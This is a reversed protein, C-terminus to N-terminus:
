NDPDEMVKEVVSKPPNYRNFHDFIDLVQNIVPTNKLGYYGFPTKDRPDREGKVVYSTEIIGNAIMKKVETAQGWLAIPSKIIEDVSSPNWFFSSELLARRALQHANWTFLNGEEEDDWELGGLLQVTVFFALYIRLEAVLGHLKDRYLQIFADPVQGDEVDWIDRYQPHQQIFKDFKRQIAAKNPTKKYLGMAVVESIIKLVEKVAPLMGNGLVEGMAANFRGIEITEMTSDYRLKGFRAQALGPIWSRFHMLSQGLVTRSILGKQRENQTGRIQYLMKQVKDRFKAFEKVDLGEIYLQGDKEQVSDYVSPADKDLIKDFKPNKIKNDSDVVYHKAMASLVGKSINDDSWVYGIFLTRSRFRRSFTTAGALEIKESPISRSEPQWYEAVKKFQDDRRSWSTLTEGWSQKTFYRGERAIMGMATKGQIYDAIQITHNFGLSRISMYQMMSNMVKALSYDGLKTDTKLQKGYLLMDVFSDFYEKLQPDLGIKKVLDGEVERIINEEFNDLQISEVREKEILTRLAKVEGEIASKSLHTNASYVMAMLSKTLDKSKTKLGLEKGREYLAKQVAEEFEPTDPTYKKALEEEIRQQEKNSPKNYVPDTYLLPITALSNGNSDVAGLLEDEQHIQLSNQYISTLDGLGGPGFEVINDWLGKRVNAVFRRGITQSGFTETWQLNYKIYMDYYNKVPENSEIFKWKESHYDSAKDERPKLYYSSYLNSGDSKISNNDLWRKKASKAEEKTMPTVALDHEIQKFVKEKRSEYRQEDLTFYTKLWDKEEKTVKGKNRAREQIDDRKKWFEKTYESVLRGTNEDYLLDFKEMKGYGNAAAWDSFEKDIKEITEFEDLTKRRTIEDAERILENLRQFVPMNWDQIGQFQRAFASPIEGAKLHHHGIREELEDLMRNQLLRATSEAKSVAQGLRKRDEKKMNDLQNSFDSALNAYIEMEGIADTVESYDMFREDTAPLNLRDKYQNFLEIVDNVMGTVDRNLQVNKLANNIRSIKNILRTKEGAKARNLLSQTQSKEELLKKILRDVVPDGTLEEVPIANLYQTDQRNNADQMAITKFGDEIEKIWENGSYESYTARIPIIRARRFSKIGYNEKLMNKYRALQMSWKNQKLAGPAEEGPRSFSKYDYVAATGDSFLVALDITGALDSLSDMIPLEFYFKPEVDPNIEKQIERIESILARMGSTLQKFQNAHMTVFEPGYESFEDLELLKAVENRIDSQSISEKNAIAKGIHELYSHIVTGKRAFFPRDEGKYNKGIAKLHREILESVRHSVRKGTKKNLYGEQNPLKEVDPNDLKNVIDEYIPAKNLESETREASLEYAIIEPVEEIPPLENDMRYFINHTKFPGLARELQIYSESNYNPCVLSM